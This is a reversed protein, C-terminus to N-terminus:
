ALRLCTSKKLKLVSFEFHKLHTSKREPMAHNIFVTSQSKRLRKFCYSQIFFFWSYLVYMVVLLFLFNAQSTFYSLSYSVWPKQLVTQWGKSVHAMPCTKLPFYCLSTIYLSVRCKIPKCRNAFSFKSQQKETHLDWYTYLLNSNLLDFTLGDYFTTTQREPSGMCVM